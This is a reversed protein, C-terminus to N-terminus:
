GFPLKVVVKCTRGTRTLVPFPQTGTLAARRRVAVPPKDGFAVGDPSDRDPPPAEGSMVM